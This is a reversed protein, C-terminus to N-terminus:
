GNEPLSVRMGQIKCCGTDDIQQGLRIQREAIDRIREPNGFLLSTRM